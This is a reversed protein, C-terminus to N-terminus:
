PAPPLSLVGLGSVENRWTFGWVGVILKGDGGLRAPNGSKGGIWGSLQDADMISEWLREQPADFRAHIRLGGETASISLDSATM